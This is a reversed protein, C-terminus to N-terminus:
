GWAEITHTGAEEEGEGRTSISTHPTSCRASCISTRNLQPRPLQKYVLLLSPRLPPARAAPSTHTSILQSYLPVPLASQQHTLPHPPPPADLLHPVVMQTLTREATLTSLLSTSFVRASAPPTWTDPSRVSPGLGRGHGSQWALQYIRCGAWGQLSSFLGSRGGELTMLPPSAIVATDNTRLKPDPDHV